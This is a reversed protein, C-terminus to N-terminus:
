EPGMVAAGREDVALMVEIAPAHHVVHSNTLIFGDPTFIFGSGNSRVEQRLRPHTTRRGRPRQRVDINVVSPSVKEAARIIARSYADLLDNDATPAAESAQIDEPQCAHNAVVQLVRKM